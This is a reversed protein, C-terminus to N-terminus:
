ARLRLAAARYAADYEPDRRQDATLAAWAQGLEQADDLERLASATLTGDSNEVDVTGAAGVAASLAVPPRALDLIAAVGDRVSPDTHRLLATATDAIAPVLVGRSRFLAIREDAERRLTVRAEVERELALHQERTLTIGAARLSAVVDGSDGDTNEDDDDDAAAPPQEIVISADEAAPAQEDPATEVAADPAQETPDTDATATTDNEDAMDPGETDPTSHQQEAALTARRLTISGLGEVAPIDVFACGAFVSPYEAGTNTHYPRFESSRESLKDGRIWERVQDKEAKSGVLRWDGVLMPVVADGASPDPRNEVRLSEFRGIVNSVEWSHDLRMPPRFTGRLADFRQVWADLMDRTVEFVGNFTGPKVVAMGVILDPDSAAFEVAEHGDLRLLEVDPAAEETVRYGELDEPAPTWTATTMHVAYSSFSGRM